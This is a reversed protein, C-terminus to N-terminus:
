LYVGGGMWQGIMYEGWMDALSTPCYWAGIKSEKITEEDLTSNNCGQCFLFGLPLSVREGEGNAYAAKKM